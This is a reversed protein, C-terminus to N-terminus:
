SFTKQVWFGHIQMPSKLFLPMSKWIGVICQKDILTNLLVFYDSWRAELRHERCGLPFVTSHKDAFASGKNKEMVQIYDCSQFPIQKAAISLALNNLRGAQALIWDGWEDNGLPSFYLV